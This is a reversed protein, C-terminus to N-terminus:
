RFDVVGSEYLDRVVRLVEERPMGSVDALTALDLVGDMLSLVFGARHDLPLRKLAAPAMVVTPAGSVTRAWAEDTTIPGMKPRTVLRVESRATLDPVAGAPPGPADPTTEDLDIEVEGQVEIEGDLESAPPPPKPTVATILADSDKAFRAVDFSPPMTPRDSRKPM